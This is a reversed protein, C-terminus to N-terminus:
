HGCAPVAPACPTYVPVKVTAQYPVSVCYCVKRTVVVPKCTAVVKRCTYTKQVPTYSCVRVKFTRQHPVCHYVTCTVNQTYPVMKCATYCCGTCPDTCTVPVSRYCTVARTVQSPVRTYVTCTRTQESWSPQYVTCTVPVEVTKCTVQNVTCQVDKTRWEPKYCTVVKDVCSVTM